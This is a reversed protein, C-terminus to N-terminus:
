ANADRIRTLVIPIPEDYYASIDVNYKEKVKRILEPRGGSLYHEWSTLMSSNSVFSTSYSTGLIDSWFEDIFPHLSDIQDNPAFQAKGKGSKPLPIPEGREKMHKVREEFVQRLNSIAEDHDGGAAALAFFEEIGACPVHGVNTYALKIKYDEFKPELKRRNKGFLRKIFSM